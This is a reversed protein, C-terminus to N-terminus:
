VRILLGMIILYRDKNTRNYGEHWTDYENLHIVGQGFNNPIRYQDSGAKDTYYFTSWDINDSDNLYILGTAVQLRTDLHKGLYFGPMDKLYQGGWVTHNHMQEETWGEWLNKIHPFDKYLQAIVKLKVTESSLFELMDKLILSSPNPLVSRGNHGDNAKVVSDSHDIWNEQALNELVTNKPSDIVFELSSLNNRIVSIELRM